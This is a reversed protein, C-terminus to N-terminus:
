CPSSGGCRAVGTRAEHGRLRDARHAQCTSQSGSQEFDLSRYTSYRVGRPGARATLSTEKRDDGPSTNPRAPSDPQPLDVMAWAIRRTRRGGATMVPPSIRKSPSSTSSSSRRALQLVEAPALHRHDELARHVREVRHHGDAVLDRVHELRVLLVFGLSARSRAASSSSITPM